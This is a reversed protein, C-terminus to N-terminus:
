RLVEVNPEKSFHFNPQLRNPDPDIGFGDNFGQGGPLVNRGRGAFVPNPVEVSAEKRVEAKGKRRRIITVSKVM